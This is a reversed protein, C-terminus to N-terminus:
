KNKVPIYLIQGEIIDDDELRNQSRIHLTTTEYKEALKEITDKEQVICLKLKVYDDEDSRFMDALYTLDAKENRSEYSEEERSYSEEELLSSSEQLAEEVIEPEPEKNKQFFEEFSQTKQKFLWRDDKTENNDEATELTPLQEPSEEIYSSSENEVVAEFEFLEETEREEDVVDAFQEQTGEEEEVEELQNNIGHIEIASRLYLQNSKRLEYDFESILVTVDDLDEVRYSPVTIEVPFRHMFEAHNYQTDTVREMFRKSDYGELYSDEESGSDQAKQYSGQLEIVGRISIYDNFEQISIEPELSIGMIEEVEKGKEFYLSENLEFRFVNQENVM